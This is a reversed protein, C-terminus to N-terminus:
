SPENGVHGDHGRGWEYVLRACGPVSCLPTGYPKIVGTRQNPHDVVRGWRKAWRDAEMCHCHRDCLMPLPIRFGILIVARGDLAEVQLDRVDAGVRRAM